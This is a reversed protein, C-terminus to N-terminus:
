PRLSRLDAPVDVDLFIGPGSDAAFRIGVVGM